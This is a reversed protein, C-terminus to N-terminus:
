EETGNSGELWLRLWLTSVEITVAPDSGNRLAEHDRHLEVTVSLMGPGQKVRPVMALKPGNAMQVRPLPLSAIAM